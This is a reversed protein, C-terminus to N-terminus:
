CAPAFESDLDDYASIPPFEEHQPIEPIDLDDALAVARDSVEITEIEPVDEAYATAARYTSRGSPAHQM